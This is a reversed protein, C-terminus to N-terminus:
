KKKVTAKRGSEAIRLLERNVARREARHFTKAAHEDLM